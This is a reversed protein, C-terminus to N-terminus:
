CNDIEWKVSMTLCKKLCTKMHAIDSRFLDYVWGTFDNGTFDRKLIDTENDYLESHEENTLEKTARNVYDLPALVDAWYLALNPLNTNTNFDQRQLEENTLYHAEIGASGMRIYDSPHNAKLWSLDEDYVHSVYSLADPALNFDWIENYSAIGYQAWVNRHFEEHAWGGALPVKTTAAFALAATFEQGVRNWVRNSKSKTPDLITNWVKAVGYNM